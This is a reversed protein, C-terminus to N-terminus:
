KWVSVFGVLWGKKKLNWGGGGGGCGGGGLNLRCCSSWEM